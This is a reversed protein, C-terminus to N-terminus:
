KLGYNGEKPSHAEGQLNKILDENAPQGLFEKIQEEHGM